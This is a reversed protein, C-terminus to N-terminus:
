RGLHVFLYVFLFDSIHEACPLLECTFRFTIYVGQAHQLCVCLLYRSCLILRSFASCTPSPTLHPHRCHRFTSSFPPLPSLLLPLPHAPWLFLFANSISGVLSPCIKHSVALCAVAHARMWRAQPTPRTLSEVSDRDM